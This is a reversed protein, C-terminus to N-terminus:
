RIQIFKQNCTIQSKRIKNQISENISNLNSSKHNEYIGMKSLLLRYNRNKIRKM